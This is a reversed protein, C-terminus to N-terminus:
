DPQAVAYYTVKVKGDNMQKFLNLVQEEETYCSIGDCGCANKWVILDKYMQAYEKRNPANWTRMAYILLNKHGTIDDQQIMTVTYGYIIKQTIDTMAFVQLNDVLCAELINKLYYPSSKTTPPYSDLIARKISDWYEAIQQM